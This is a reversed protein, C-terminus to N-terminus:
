GPQGDAGSSSGDTETKAPTQTEPKTPDAPPQHDRYLQTNVNGIADISFRDFYTEQDTASKDCRTEWVTIMASEIKIVTEDTEEKLIKLRGAIRRLAGASLVFQHEKGDLDKAIVPSIAREEM